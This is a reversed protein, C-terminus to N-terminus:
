GGLSALNARVAEPQAVAEPLPRGRADILLGLLGGDLEAEMPEGPGAGLDFPRRPRLTARMRSGGPLPIRVLEGCAVACSLRAGQGSQGEVLLAERGPRGQGMPAVLTGLVTIDDRELASRVAEPNAQALAGFASALELWDVALRCIGVPQLGDLLALAAAAAPHASSFVAGGAVIVDAKPLSGEELGAEPWALGAAARVQGLAERVFAFELECSREDECALWPRLGRNAAWDAIDDEGLGSTLWRRIRAPGVAALLGTAGQGLGCGQLVLHAGLGTHVLATVQSGVDVALVSVGPRSYANLLALPLPLLRQGCWERITPLASAKGPALVLQLLALEARLAGPNPKRGDPCPNDVTRVATREAVAAIAAQRLPAPGAYLVLPRDQPRLLSIAVAIADVFAVVARDPKADAGGVILVVQPAEDRLKQAFRAFAEAAEAVEKGSVQGILKHPTCRLASLAYRLSADERLAAVAVRLPPLASLSCGLGDVGAGFSEPVIPLGDIGLVRRGSIGELDRVAAVLPAAPERLNGVAALNPAIGKAIFRHCDGVRDVLGAKVTAHGWDIAVFSEVQSQM